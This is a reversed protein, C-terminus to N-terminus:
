LKGWLDNGMTQNFVNFLAYDDLPLMFDVMILKKRSFFEM